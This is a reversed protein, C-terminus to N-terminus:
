EYWYKKQAYLMIVLEVLRMIIRVDKRVSAGVFIAGRTIQGIAHNHM